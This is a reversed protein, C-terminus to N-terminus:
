VARPGDSRAPELTRGLAIAAVLDSVEAAVRFAGTADAVTSGGLGCSPTLVTRRALAAPDEVQAALALWRSFASAASETPGTVGVLGFSIIRHPDSLMMQDARDTMLDVTADFSIVASGM